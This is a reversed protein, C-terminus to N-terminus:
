QIINGRERERERTIIQPRLYQRRQWNPERHEQHVQGRDGNGSGTNVRRPTESRRDDVILLVGPIVM